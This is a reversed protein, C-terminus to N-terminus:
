CSLVNVIELLKNIICNMNIKSGMWLKNFSNFSSVKAGVVEIHQTIALQVRNLFNPFILPVGTRLYSVTWVFESAFTQFFFQDYYDFRKSTAIIVLYARVPPGLDNYKSQNKANDPTPLKEFHSFYVSKFKSILPLTFKFSSTVYVVVQSSYSFCM